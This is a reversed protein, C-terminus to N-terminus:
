DFDMDVGIRKGIRKKGAEYVCAVRARSIDYDINNKYAKKIALYLAQKSERANVLAKISNEKKTSLVVLYNQSHHSNKNKLM